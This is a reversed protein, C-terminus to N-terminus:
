FFLILVACTDNSLFKYNRYRERSALLIVRRMIMFSLVNRSGRSSPSSQRIDGTQCPSTRFKTFREGTALFTRNTAENYNMGVVWRRIPQRKRPWTKRWAAVRFRERRAKILAQCYFSRKMEADSQNTNSLADAYPVVFIENQTGAALVPFLASGQHFQLGRTWYYAPLILRHMFPYSTMTPTGAKLEVYVVRRRPPLM